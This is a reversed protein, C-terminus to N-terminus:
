LQSASSYIHKEDKKYILNYSDCNSNTPLVNGPLSLPPTSLSYYFKKNIYPTCRYLICRFNRLITRKKRYISSSYSIIKKHTSDFYVVDGELNKSPHSLLGM